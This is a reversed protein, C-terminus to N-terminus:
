GHRGRAPPPPPTADASGGAPWAWDDSFLWTAPVKLGDAIELIADVTVAAQGNEISAVTRRDVGFCAGLREQSM